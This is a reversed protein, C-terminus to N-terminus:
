QGAELRRILDMEVKAARLENRIWDQHTVVRTTRRAARNANLGRLETATACNPSM